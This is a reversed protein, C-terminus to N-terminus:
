RWALNETRIWGEVGEDTRVWLVLGESDPALGGDQDVFEGDVYTVGDHKVREGGAYTVPTGDALCARDGDERELEVCAGAGVVRFSLDESFPPFELKPQVLLWSAGGEYPDYPSAVQVVEGASTWGGGSTWNDPWFGETVPHM